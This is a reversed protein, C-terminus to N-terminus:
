MLNTVHYRSGKCSKATIFKKEALAESRRQYMKSLCSNVEYPLIGQFPNNFDRM